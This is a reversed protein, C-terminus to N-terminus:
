KLREEIKYESLRTHLVAVVIAKQSDWDLVYYAHYPYPSAIARRFHQYVQKYSEPYTSILTIIRGLRELFENGLDEKQEDYYQVIELIDQRAEPSIVVELNQM